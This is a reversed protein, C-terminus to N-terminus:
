KRKGHRQEKEKDELVHVWDEGFKDEAYNKIRSM